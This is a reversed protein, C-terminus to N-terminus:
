GSAEQAKPAGVAHVRLAGSGFNFITTVLTDYMNLRGHM